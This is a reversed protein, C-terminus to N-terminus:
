IVQDSKKPWTLFIFVQCGSGPERIKQLRAALAVAVNKPTVCRVVSRTWRFVPKVPFLSLVQINYGIPVLQVLFAIMTWRSRM